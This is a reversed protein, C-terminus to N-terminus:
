RGPQHTEPEGPIFEADRSPKYKFNGFLVSLCKECVSFRYTVNDELHESAFGGTVEAEVLGYYDAAGFPERKCSDGCQNCIVDAITHVTKTEVVSKIM